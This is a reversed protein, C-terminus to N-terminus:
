ARAAVARYHPRLEECMAVAYSDTMGAIMDTLLQAERYRIPMPNSPSEFVRRYNESMRGYAYSAFPSRRPAEAPAGPERDTIAFWLMDMLEHIVEFGRLEVKLVSPHRYVHRQNFQRLASIFVGASSSELLEGVFVGDLIAQQQRLWAETLARMLVGMARIRFVQMSIDNLEAPSLGAERYVVHEREAENCVWALTADQGAAHRLFALIDHFSVLRKKVADEADLVCYAIDDCAELVFTLPHRQGASLGTAGWVEEVMRAESQFFGHKRRVPQNKDVQNSAVPYKLLAALTAYTLNLGYDDNIIQLKTLLRLTQANGEFRLFDLRMAETLGHREAFVEPACREFWAQMAREGQHGFPPNGLDHALGLTGLLTPVDRAAQHRTQAVAHNFVLDVGAARALNAVEHSHTLRTRVVDNRELPFVQTKDAMRRVPAAYLIRDYDREIETRVEGSGQQDPWPLTLPVPKGWAPSSEPVEARGDTHTALRIASARRRAPNLLM